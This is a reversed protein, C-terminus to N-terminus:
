NAVLEPSRFNPFRATFHDVLRGELMEVRVQLMFHAGMMSWRMQQKKSMRRNVVHNMVSEASASSIRRGQKRAKAYDILNKRNNSVFELLRQAARAGTDACSSFFRDLNPLAQELSAKLTRLLEIALPGRGRWLADRVRRALKECRVLIEPRPVWCRASIPGLLAKLKMGIHFWDLVVPAVRPTVDTVLSRMGRAGDNVVDVVSHRAWGAQHMAAAVLARAMLPSPKACAFRCSMGGDDEIRGAIVKFKSVDERTSSRLVTGDLAVRLLGAGRRRSGDAFWGMAFLRDEVFEGSRITERRVSAHSLRPIGTPEAVHLAASRYPLTAGQRACLYSLEPTTRRPLLSEIPCESYRLDIPDDNDDLPEPTCLCSLVRPVRFHVRGLATDVVRPRWDKIRRYRGCYRCHRRRADYAYVQQQTVVQQLNALLTQGEARSLGFDAVTARDAPREFRGIEQLEDSAGPGESRILITWKVQM